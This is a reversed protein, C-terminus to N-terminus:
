EARQKLQENEFSEDIYNNKVNLWPAVIICKDGKEFKLEYGEVQKKLTYDLLKLSIRIIEAKSAADTMEVLKEIQDIAEQSFDFQVRKTKKNGKM